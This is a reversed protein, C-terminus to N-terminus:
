RRSDAWIWTWQTPLAIQGAWGRGGEKGKSNLIHTQTYYLILSDLVYFETMHFM